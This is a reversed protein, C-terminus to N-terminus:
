SRVRLARVCWPACRRLLRAARAACAGDGDAACLAALCRAAEEAADGAPTAAGDGTVIAAVRVRAVRLRSALHALQADALPPAAGTDGDNSAACSLSAYHFVVAHVDPLQQQPALPATM